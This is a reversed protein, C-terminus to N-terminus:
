VGESIPSGMESKKRAEERPSEGRQRATAVPQIESEAPAGGDINLERLQAALWDAATWSHIQQRLRKLRARREAAPM